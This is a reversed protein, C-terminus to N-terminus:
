IIITECWKYIDTWLVPVCRQYIIGLIASYNLEYHSILSNMEIPPYNDFARNFPNVM